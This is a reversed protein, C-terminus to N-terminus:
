KKKKSGKTGGAKTPKRAPAKQKPVTTGKTAGPGGAKRKAKPADDAEAKAKRKGAKAANEEGPQDAQGPM